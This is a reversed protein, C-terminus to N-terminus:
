KVEFDTFDQNGSNEDSEGDVKPYEDDETAKKLLRKFKTVERKLAFVLVLNMIGEILLSVGMYIMVANVAISTCRFIILLVGLVFVFLGYALDIWWNRDGMYKSDISFGIRRLGSFGAFLGIGLVLSSPVFIVMIGLATALLGVILLSAERSFDPAFCFGIIYIIGVFILVAAVITELTSLSQEPLACFLIGLVIMLVSTIVVRTKEKKLINM